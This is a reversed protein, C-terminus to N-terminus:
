RTTRPQVRRKGRHRLAWKSHNEIPDVSLGIIKVNRKDFEPKISAM